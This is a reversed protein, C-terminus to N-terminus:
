STDHITVPLAYALERPSLRRVLVLRGKKCEPCVPPPHEPPATPSLVVPPARDEAALLERCLAVKERRTRNALFGQHRIRVFGRPLVHLLFRRIFEVASLTMTKRRSAHAYDKWAFTVKDDQMRLLRHNSIAVRHTYRALYKLVCDPSGFPPKAYVMWDKGRLPRLYAWFNSPDELHALSGYFRLDGADFSRGLAELLKRRFLRSLVRVPLFFGPKCPVWRKGDPSIGGGPVVCHIHPHHELTQGWTHLISLTGIQAGLHKPDAAIERLTEWSSRFLANYVVRTNQMAIAAVERPVTFVVHFYEVPLLESQRDALWAFAASAQCKPCHRNRCSNYTIVEHGCEDCADIHAGLAATRCVTVAHLVRSEAGSVRGSRSAAFAAGHARVIDAMELAQRAM